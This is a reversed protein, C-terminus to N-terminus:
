AAIVAEAAGLTGKRGLKSTTTSAGRATSTATAILGEIKEDGAAEAKKENLGGARTQADAKAAQSITSGAVVTATTAATVANLQALIETQDHETQM